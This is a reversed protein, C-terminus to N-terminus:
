PGKYMIYAISYWPPLQNDASTTATDTSFNTPTGKNAPDPYESHLDDGPPIWHQHSDTTLDHNHQPAGGTDDPATAAGAPLVFRDRFDPTANSGDCLAWDNPVTALSGQWM